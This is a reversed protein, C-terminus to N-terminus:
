LEPGSKGGFQDKIMQERTNIRYNVKDNYVNTSIRNRAM